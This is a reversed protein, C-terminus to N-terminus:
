YNNKTFVSANHDQMYSWCFKFCPLPIKLQTKHCICLLVVWVGRQLPGATGSHPTHDPVPQLDWNRWPRGWSCLCNRGPHGLTCGPWATWVGHSHAISIYLAPSNAEILFVRITSRDDLNRIPQGLSQIGQIVTSSQRVLQSGEEKREDGIFM